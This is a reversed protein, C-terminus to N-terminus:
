NKDRSFKLYEDIGVIVNVKILKHYLPSLMDTKFDKIPRVNSKMKIGSLPCVVDKSPEISSLFSFTSM